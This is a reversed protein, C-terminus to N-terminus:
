EEICRNHFHCGEQPNGWVCQPATDAPDRRIIQDGVWIGGECYEVAFEGASAFLDRHLNEVRVPVDWFKNHDLIADYAEARWIADSAPGFLLVALLTIM